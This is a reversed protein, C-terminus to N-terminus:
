FCTRCFDKQVPLGNNCQDIVTIYYRTCEMSGQSFQPYIRKKFSTAGPSVNITGNFRDGGIANWERYDLKIATTAPVSQTFSVKMYFECVGNVKIEEIDITVGTMPVCPPDPFYAVDNGHCVKVRGNCLLARIYLLGSVNACPIKIIGGTPLSSYTFKNVTKGNQLYEIEWGCAPNTFGPPLTYSIEVHYLGNVKKMQSTFSICEFDAVLTHTRYVPPCETADANVLIFEFEYDGASLGTITFPANSRNSYGSWSTGPLLRHREKFYQGTTLTPSPITITIDAM